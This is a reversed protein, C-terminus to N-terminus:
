VGISRCLQFVNELGKGQAVVTLWLLGEKLALISNISKATPFSTSTSSPCLVTFNQCDPTFHLVSLCGLLVPAARYTSWKPLQRCPHICM